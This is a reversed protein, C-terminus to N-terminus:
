NLEKKYVRAKINIIKVLLIKRSILFKLKITLPIVANLVEVVNRIEGFVHGRVHSLRFNADEIRRVSVNESTQPRLTPELGWAGLFHNSVDIEVSKVRLNFTM